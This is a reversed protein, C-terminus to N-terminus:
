VNLLGLLMWGDMFNGCQPFSVGVCSAYTSYSPTTFEYNFATPGM